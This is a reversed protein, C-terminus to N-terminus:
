MIRQIVRLVTKDYILSIVYSVGVAIALHIVAIGYVTLPSQNEAYKLTLYRLPGNIIFVFMSAKGTFCLIKVFINRESLRFVPYIMTLLLITVSLFSLPFTYVSLNSLAFVFLATLLITKNFKIKQSLALIIGLSFEPLHGLFNGFIPVRFKEALPLFMYILLYSIALLIYFGKEQKNRIFKYLFPFVLYLQLILSFFWWPGVYAFIQDYSFNKTMLLVDLGNKLFLLLSGNKYVVDYCFMVSLGVFVLSYIKLFRFRIFDIYNINEGSKLYKKTLGYASVFIFLQVGFHGFYSFLGSLIYAPESFIVEGLKKLRSFDYDLENERIFPSSWHLFNHLVIMIIAIGKIITIQNKELNFFSKATM